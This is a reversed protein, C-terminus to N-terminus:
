HGGPRPRIRATGPVPSPSGPPNRARRPPSKLPCARHGASHSATRAIPVPMLFNRSIRRPIKSSNVSWLAYRRWRAAWPATCEASSHRFNESSRYRAFDVRARHQQTAFVRHYAYSPRRIELCQGDSHASQSGWRLPLGTSGQLTEEYLGEAPRTRLRPYLTALAPGCASQLWRRARLNQRHAISPHFEFLTVHNKQLHLKM